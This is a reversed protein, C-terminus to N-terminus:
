KLRYLAFEILQPVDSINYKSKPCIYFLLHNNSHLSKLTNHTNLYFPILIINYM